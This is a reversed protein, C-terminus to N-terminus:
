KAAAEQKAIVRSSVKAYVAKTLISKSVLESKSKFPRAAIIKDAIADGVGPLKMLDEKSASNIDVRAAMAHHTKAPATSAAKTTGTAPASTSPTTGGQAYALAAVLVAGTALIATLSKMRSM